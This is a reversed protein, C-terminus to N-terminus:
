PTVGFYGYLSSSREIKTLWKGLFGAARIIDGIDGTNAPRAKAPLFGSLLGAEDVIIVRERLGFRLGERVHPVLAKAREPFGAHITPNSAIWSSLHSAMSRPLTARTDRHLVLPAIIFVLEWPMKKGCRREYEEASAAIIAAILAPNLMTAVVPSRAEWDGLERLDANM